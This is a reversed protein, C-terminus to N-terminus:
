FQWIVTISAPWSDLNEGGIFEVFHTPSRRGDRAVAELGSPRDAKRWRCLIFFPRRDVSGAKDKMPRPCRRMIIERQDALKPNQYRAATLAM